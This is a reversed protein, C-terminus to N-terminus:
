INRDFTKNFNQKDHKAENEHFEFVQFVEVTLVFFEIEM